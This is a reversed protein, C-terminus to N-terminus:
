GKVSGATLGGVIQDQLVLYILVVPLAAIIAGAAFVGWNATYQTSIFRYLGVMFTYQEARQLVISALIFEGFTGIFTLIAIVAVIPRVLPFIIRWFIQWDSAGDVKASEDLDRPVSDFFGKMLWVNLGLVGGLYILILGAHSGLGFFPVYDGLELLLLFLAVMMLMNPFVQILVLSLLLNRRGWFRFRSFAFAALSTIIVAFFTTTTSVKISNWFWLPFPNIPDNFLSQYNTMSANRPIVTQSTLRGVPDLSASFIMVVPFMAFFIALVALLYSFALSFQRRQTATLTNSKRATTTLHNSM